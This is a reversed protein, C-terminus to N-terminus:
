SKLIQCIVKKAKKLIKLTKFTIKKKYLNRNALNGTKIIKAM